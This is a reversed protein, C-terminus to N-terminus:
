PLWSPLDGIKGNSDVTYILYKQRSKSKIVKWEHDGTRSQASSCESNKVDAIDDYFIKGYVMMELTVEKQVVDDSVDLPNVPIFGGVQYSRHCYLCEFYNQAALVKVTKTQAESVFAM